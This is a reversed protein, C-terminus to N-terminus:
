PLAYIYVELEPTFAAQIVPEIARWDGGALGAGIRPLHVSAHQFQAPEAVRRLCTVLAALDLPHPNQMSRLGHQAVMNAVWLAPAVSVFQVQGLPLPLSQRAWALYRSRAEPWRRSVALVFGKGWRGQDNVIHALIKPDQGHNVRTADGVVYTLM